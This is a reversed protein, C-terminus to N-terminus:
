SWIPRTIEQGTRTRPKPQEYKEAKEWEAFEPALWDLRNREVLETRIRLYLRELYIVDDLAYEIQKKPLPRRTWDARTHAKSLDVNLMERVLNAYGIQENYGLLPAALQTDFIPSPVTGKSLLYFIELDQSAAHLVKTIDPNLLLTVFPQLDKIAQTDICALIDDVKVQVLCLEPRYTRERLFETDVAIYSKASLRQCLDNLKEATDVYLYPPQTNSM